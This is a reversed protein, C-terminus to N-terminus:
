KQPVTHKCGHNGVSNANCWCWCLHWLPSFGEMPLEEMKRNASRLVCWAPLISHHSHPAEELCRFAPIESELQKACCMFQMSQLILTFILSRCSKLCVSDASILDTRLESTCLTGCQYNLNINGLHQAIWYWKNRGSAESSSSKQLGKPQAFIPIRNDWKNWSNLLRGVNKWM